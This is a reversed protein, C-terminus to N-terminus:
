KIINMVRTISVLRNIGMFKLTKRMVTSVRIKITSLTKIIKEIGPQCIQHETKVTNMSRILKFSRMCVIRFTIGAFFSFASFFYFHMKFSRSEYRFATRKIKRCADHYLDCFPDRLMGM